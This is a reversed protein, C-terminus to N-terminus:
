AERLGDPLPATWGDGLPASWVFSLARRSFLWEGEVRTFSEDYRGAAAFSEGGAVYPADFYCSGEAVDGAIETIENTTVHWWRDWVTPLGEVSAQIAARGVVAGAVDFVGDETFLGALEAWRRQDALLCFRARLESIQARSELAAVREELTTTAQIDSM